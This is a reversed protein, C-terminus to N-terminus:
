RYQRRRAKNEGKRARGVQWRKLQWLGRASTVALADTVAEVRTILRDQSALTNWGARSCPQNGALDAMVFM